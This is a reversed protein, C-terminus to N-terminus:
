FLPVPRSGDKELARIARWRKLLSIKKAKRPGGVGGCIDCGFVAIDMDVCSPCNFIPSWIVMAAVLLLLALVGMTGFLWSTGAHRAM